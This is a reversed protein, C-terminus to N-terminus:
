AAQKYEHILGNCRTTVTVLSRQQFPLVTATIPPQQDLSRHPRHENYQAGYEEALQRLQPENLHHHPRATRPAADRVM